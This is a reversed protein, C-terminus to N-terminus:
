VTFAVVSGTDTSRHNAAVLPWRGNAETEVAANRRGAKAPRRFAATSVPSLSEPGNKYSGIM